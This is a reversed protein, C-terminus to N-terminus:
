AEKFTMRYLDKLERAIRISMTALMCGSAYKISANTPDQTVHLLITPPCHVGLVKWAFDADCM